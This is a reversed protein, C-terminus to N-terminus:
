RGRLLGCQSRNLRGLTKLWWRVTRVTTALLAGGVCVREFQVPLGSCWCLWRQVSRLEPRLEPLLRAWDLRRPLQVSGPLAASRQAMRELVNRRQLWGCPSCCCLVSLMHGCCSCFGCHKLCCTHSRCPECCSGCGTGCTPECCSGCECGCAPECCNGCGCRRAAVATARGLARASRCMAKAAASSSKGPMNGATPTAVPAADAPRSAAAVLKAAADKNVAVARSAAADAGAVTGCGGHNGCGCNHGGCCDFGFLGFINAHTTAPTFSIAALVAAVTFLHRM